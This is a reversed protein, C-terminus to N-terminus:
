HKLFRKTIIQQDTSLISLFYLGPALGNLEIQGLNGPIQRVIKGQVNKLVLLEPAIGEYEIHLIDKAPNPYLTIDFTTVEEQSRMQPGDNNLNSLTTFTKINTYNTWGQSCLSRARFQYTTGPNLSNINAKSQLVNKSQWSSTGLVRYQARYKVADQFDDWDLLVTTTGINKAQLNVPRNCVDWPTSFLILDSWESLYGSACKQRFQGEYSTNPIFTYYHKTKNPTSFNTWDTTGVERFRFYNRDSGNVQQWTVKGYTGSTIKVTGSPVSCDTEVVSLTQDIQIGSVVQIIGSPWTIKLESISTNEGLGFFADIM